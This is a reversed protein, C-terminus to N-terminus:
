TQSAAQRRYHSTRSRQQHLRRRHSWGLRYAMDHRTQVTLTIFLCQIENCSLPVPGDPAPTRTHEDARVVPLFAHGLMALTVWRTWSRYRRGQHEDLKRWGKRPRSPRKWM